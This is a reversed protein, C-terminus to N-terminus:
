VLVPFAQVFRTVLQLTPDLQKLYIAMTPIFITEV